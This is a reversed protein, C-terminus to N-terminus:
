VVLRAAELCWSIKRILILHRIGYQPLAQSNARLKATSNLTWFRPDGLPGGMTAPQTTRIVKPHDTYAITLFPLLVRITVEIGNTKWWWWPRYGLIKNLRPLVLNRNFTRWDIQFKIPLGSGTTGLQRDFKLAIPTNKWVLQWVAFIRRFNILRLVSWEIHLYPNGTGNIPRMQRGPSQRQVASTKVLWRRPMLYYLYSTCYSTAEQCSYFSSGGTVQEM